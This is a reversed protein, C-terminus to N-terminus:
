IFLLAGGAVARIELPLWIPLSDSRVSNKGRRRVIRAAMGPMVIGPKEEVVCFEAAFGQQFSAAHGHGLAAHGAESISQGVILDM